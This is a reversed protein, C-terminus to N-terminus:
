QIVKVTAGRSSAYNFQLVSNDPFRYIGFTVRGTTANRCEKVAFAPPFLSRKNNNLVAYGGTFTVAQSIPFLFAVEEATSRIM